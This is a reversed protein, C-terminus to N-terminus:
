GFFDNAFELGYKPNDIFKQRLDFYDYSKGWAMQPKLGLKVLCAIMDYSNNKMAMNLLSVEDFNDSLDLEIDLSPDEVMSIM